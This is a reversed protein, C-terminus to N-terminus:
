CLSLLNMPSYSEFTLVHVLVEPSESLLVFLSGSLQSEGPSLAEAKGPTLCLDGSQGGAWQTLIGKACYWSPMLTGAVVAFSSSLWFSDDSFLNTSCELFYIAQIKMTDLSHLVFPSLSFSVLSICCKFAIHSRSNSGRTSVGLGSGAAWLINDSNPM